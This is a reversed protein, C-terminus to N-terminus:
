QLPVTDVQKRRHRDPGGVTRKAKTAPMLNNCAGQRVAAVPRQPALLLSECHLFVAGSNSWRM